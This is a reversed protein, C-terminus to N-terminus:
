IRLSLQLPVNSLIPPSEATQIETIAADVLLPDFTPRATSLDSASKKTGLKFQSTAQVPHECHSSGRPTSAIVTSVAQSAVQLHHGSHHGGSSVNADPAGAQYTRGAAVISCEFDCVAAFSTNAFFVLTLLTVVRQWLTM